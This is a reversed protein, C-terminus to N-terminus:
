DPCYGAARATRLIRRAPQTFGSHAKIEENWWAMGCSVESALGRPWWQDSM